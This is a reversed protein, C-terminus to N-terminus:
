ASLLRVELLMKYRLGYDFILVMLLIYRSIYWFSFNSQLLKHVIYIAFPIVLLINCSYLVNLIKEQVSLVSDLIQGSATSAFVSSLITDLKRLEEAGVSKQKVFESLFQYDFSGKDLVFSGVLRSGTGSTVASNLMLSLFRKLYELTPDQSQSTSHKAIQYDRSNTSSEPTVYNYNFDFNMDHPDVWQQSGIHAQEQFATGFYLLLLFLTISM